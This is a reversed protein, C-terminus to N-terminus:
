IMSYLFESIRKGSGEFKNRFPMSSSSPPCQLYKILQDKTGAHHTAGIKEGIFAKRANPRYSIIDDRFMALEILLMSAMGIITDPIQVMHEISMNQFIRVYDSQYRIYKDNGEEPHSKIVLVASEPLIEIIDNLVEFEDYGLYDESDPFFSNKLAETIFLIIKKGIFNNKKKWSEINVDSLNSKSLKELNPNGGVFIKKAPLGDNIAQKKAYDDNVIIHDPLVMKGNLDFRKKYWSWHEIITVSPIKVSKSKTILNKDLSDGLSTGTVIISATQIDLESVIKKDYLLSQTNKSIIWGTNVIWKELAIFYKLPGVNETGFVIM